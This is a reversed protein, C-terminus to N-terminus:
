IDKDQDYKTLIETMRASINENFLIYELYVGNKECLSKKLVDSKKIKKFNEEGGWYKKPSFHQEGQCEIAVNIEPLYFDLPMKQKNKLWDFNKQYEYTINNDVLFNEVSEELHSMRCKPCGVGRIHDSAYQWFDGHKPCTICIKSHTGNYESKSYDYRNRHVEKAKKVFFATDKKISSSTKECGCKPCGQGSLHAFPTQWFEGHEPCIICVKERNNKGYKVKSYDYKKNHLKEARLIFDEQKLRHLDHQHAKACKQCGYKTKGLFALPTIWFEGHEPCIICVKTRNGNYEVKSYDFKSGYKQIAKEIFESTALKKM